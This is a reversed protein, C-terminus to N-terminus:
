GIQKKAMDGIVPIMFKDGTFAKFMLFVWACLGFLGVPLMILWGILPIFSLIMQLVFLPLSFLISQMAHFRVTANSKEMALLVGGSIFGLAYALTNAINEPLGLSTDAM